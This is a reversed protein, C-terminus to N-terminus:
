GAGVTPEEDIIVDGLIVGGEHRTKIRLAMHLRDSRGTNICAHNVGTAVVAVGIVGRSDPVHVAIKTSSIDEAFGHGEQACLSDLGDGVVGHDPVVLRRLIMREPTEGVKGTALVRTAVPKGTWIMRFVAGEARGLNLLDGAIIHVAKEDVHGEPRADAIAWLAPRTVVRFAPRFDWEDDIPAVRGPDGEM